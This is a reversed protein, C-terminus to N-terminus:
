GKLATKAHYAPGRLTVNRPVANRRPGEGPDVLEDLSVRESRLHTGEWAFRMRGQAKVM